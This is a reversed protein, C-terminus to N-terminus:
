VKDKSPPHGFYAHYARSFCTYDSYGFKNFIQSPLYGERLLKRAYMLQKNKIYDNLRIRMVHHFLRSLYNPHVNCSAAIDKLSLAEFLHKNIYNIAAKVIPHSQIQGSPNGNDHALGLLILFENILGPILLRYAEPSLNNEYYLIREIFSSLREDDTLDVLTLNQLVENIVVNDTDYFHIVFRRFEGSGIIAQHYQAPQAHAMQYPKLEIIKDELLFEIQGALLIFIEHFDHFHKYLQLNSNESPLLDSSGCTIINLEM